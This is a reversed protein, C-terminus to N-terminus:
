RQDGARGARAVRHARGHDTLSRGRGRHEADRGVVLQDGAECARRRHLEPARAACGIGMAMAAVTALSTMASTARAARPTGMGVYRM